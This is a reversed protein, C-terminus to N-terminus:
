FAGSLRGTATVGMICMEAMFAQNAFRLPQSPLPVGLEAAREPTVEAHCNFRLSDGAGLDLAGTYAGDVRAKDDPKPNKTASNYAYTPVEEWNNSSYILEEANAGARSLWVNFTTTWAHRHGFLSLLKVPENATVTGGADTIKNPPYNVNGVGSGHVASLKVDEDKMFWFNLWVERLIPRESSNFHHVQFSVSTNGPAKIGIGAEDAPIDLTSVPIDFNARQIDALPTGVTNFSDDNTAWGEKTAAPSHMFRAVSHHSGTRARFDIRYFHKDVPLSTTTDYIQLEEAGAALEYDKVLAADEYGSMDGARMQDWFAAQQPHVGFQVGQESPPPLICYEDGVYNTAYALVDICRVAYPNNTTPDFEACKNPLVSGGPSHMLGDLKFGWCEPVIKGDPGRGGAPSAAATTQAAAGAESRADGQAAIDM